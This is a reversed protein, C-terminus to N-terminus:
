NSPGDNFGHIGPLFIQVLLRFFVLFWPKSITTTTTHNPAAGKAFCTCLRSTGFVMIQLVPKGRFVFCLRNPFRNGDRSYSVTRSTSFNVIFNTKLKQLPNSVEVYRKQVKLQKITDSGLGHEESLSCFLNDLWSCKRRAGM